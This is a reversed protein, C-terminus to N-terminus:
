EQQRKNLGNKFRCGNKMRVLTRNVQDVDENYIVNKGTLKPECGDMIGEIVTGTAESSDGKKQAIICRFESTNPDIECMDGKDGSNFKNLFGM